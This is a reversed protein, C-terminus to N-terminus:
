IALRACRQSNPIRTEDNSKQEKLIMKVVAEIDEFFELLGDLRHTLSNRRQKTPINEFHEGRLWNGRVM